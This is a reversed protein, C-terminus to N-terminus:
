DTGDLDPLAMNLRRRSKSTLMFRVLHDLDDHSGGTGGARCDWGTYDCGAEVYGFGEKLKVVAVWDEIENMGESAAIVDVIDDMSFPAYRMAENWDYDKKFNELDTNDM